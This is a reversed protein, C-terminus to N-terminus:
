GRAAHEKDRASIAHNVYGDRPRREWSREMTSGGLKDAIFNELYARGTKCM